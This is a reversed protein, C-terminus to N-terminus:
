GCGRPRWIWSRIRRRTKPPADKADIHPAISVYLHVLKRRGNENRAAADKPGLVTATTSAVNWRLRGAVTARVGSRTRRAVAAEPGEFAM